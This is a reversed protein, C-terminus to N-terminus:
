FAQKAARITLKPYWSQIRLQGDPEGYEGFTLQDALSNLTEKDVIRLILSADNNEGRRTRPDATFDPLEVSFDGNSDPAAQALDFQQVIGDALGFFEHDWTALYYIRVIAQHGSLISRPVIQGRLTLRPLVECVFDARAERVEDLRFHYTKFACGPSYAIIKIDIAPQDKVAAIIEYSQRNKEQRVYGGYGGFAGSMFYRIEVKESSVAHPLSVTIMPANQLGKTDVERISSRNQAPALTSFLVFNLACAKWM